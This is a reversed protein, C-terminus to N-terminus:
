TSRSRHLRCGATDSSCSPPGRSGRPPWPAARRSPTSASEAGAPIASVIDVGPASLDITEHINAFNALRDNRDVATVSIVAGWAAPWQPDKSSRNGASATVVVNRTAAYEIMEHIFPHGQILGLSLNIVCAQHVDVAELIAKGVGLATGWGDDDLVKIAILTARPAALRVIGAVHSGHGYGEDTYGDHDSDFRDQTEEALPGPPITTHDLGLVVPPVPSQIQTFLPHSEDLGTDLIAVRIGEGQALLHARVAAVQILAHQSNYDDATRFGDGDDCAMPETDAEPAWVMMHPASWVVDPGELRQPLTLTHPDEISRVLLYTEGGRSIQDIVEVEYRRAFDEVVRNPTLRVVAHGEVVPNEGDYVFAPSSEPRPVAVHARTPASMRGCGALALAAILVILSSSLVLYRVSSSRM